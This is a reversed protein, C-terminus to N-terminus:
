GCIYRVWGLYGGNEMYNNDYQNNYAEQEFSIRNYAKKGYFPLKILWELVYLVYFMILSLCFWSPPIRFTLVLVWIISGSALMCEVWQRVHICEHNRIWQPMEEKSKFKTCVWAALTITSYNDCLFTRALWSNYIVKKMGLSVSNNSKQPCIIRVSLNM